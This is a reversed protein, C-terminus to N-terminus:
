SHPYQLHLMRRACFENIADAVSVKGPVLQELEEIFELSKEM